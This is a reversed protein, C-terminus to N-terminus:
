GSLGGIGVSSGVDRGYSCIRWVSAARNYWERASFINREVAAHSNWESAAHNNWETAASYIWEYAAIHNWKIVATCRRACATCTKREFTASINWM